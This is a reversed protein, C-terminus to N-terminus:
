GGETGGQHEARYQSPTSGLTRRFAESLRAPSSYGSQMAVDTLPISSRILLRRAHNLRERQIQEHLSRGLARHFAYDLRRRTLGVQRTVERVTLGLRAQQRILRIAAAVHPDDTAQLDTSQRRTINAPPIARFTPSESGNTMIESLREAAARGLREGGMDIASLPPTVLHCEIDDGNTSLIAIQDPVEIGRRRCAMALQQAEAVHFCLVGIPTPLSRAWDGIAETQANWGQIVDWGIPPYASLKFGAKKVQEAFALRRRSPPAKHDLFAFHRLGCGRLYDLALGAVADEDDTVLNFQDLPESHLLLVAPLGSAALHDRNVRGYVAIVGDPPDSEDLHADLAEREPALLVEWGASGYTHEIVGEIMARHYPDRSDLGLVVRRPRKDTKSLASTM